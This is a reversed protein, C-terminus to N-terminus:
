KGKFAALLGGWAHGSTTVTATAHHPRTVSADDDCWRPQSKWLRSFADSEAVGRRLALTEFGQYTARCSIEFRGLYGAIRPGRQNERPILRCSVVPRSTVCRGDPLRQAILVVDFGRERPREVRGRRGPSPVDDRLQRPLELRPPQSVFGVDDSEHPRRPIWPKPVARTGPAPPPLSSRRLATPSAWSASCESIEPVRRVRLRGRRRVRVSM